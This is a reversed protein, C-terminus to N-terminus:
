LFRESTGHFSKYKGKKSTKDDNGSGIRIATGQRRM